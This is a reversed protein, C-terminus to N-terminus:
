QSLVGDDEVSLFGDVRPPAVAAHDGRPEIRLIDMPKRGRMRPRAANPM